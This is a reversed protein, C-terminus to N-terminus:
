YNLVETLADALGKLLKEELKNLLPPLFLLPGDCPTPEPSTWGLRSRPGAVIRVRSGGLPM